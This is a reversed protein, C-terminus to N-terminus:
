RRRVRPRHRRSKEKGGYQMARQQIAPPLDEWKTGMNLASRGTQGAAPTGVATSPEGPRTTRAIIGADQVLTGDEGVHIETNKGDKEFEVEWLVRGTRTERDIDAIKAGGSQERITKQM